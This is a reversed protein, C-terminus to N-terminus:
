SWEESSKSGALDFSIGGDGELGFIRDGELSFGDGELSFSGDVELSVLSIFSGDGELSVSSIDSM